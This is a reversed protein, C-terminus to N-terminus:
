RNNGRLIDSFSQLAGSIIARTSRSVSAERTRYSRPSTNSRSELRIAQAKRQARRSLPQDRSDKSLKFTRVRHPALGHATWIRQVSRLSVGTAEAMARGTWHTTEGPPAALTLDVIRKVIDAALPRAPRARRTECWVMSGRACSANRGAGSSRSRCGRGACSRRRAAATPPRWFSVPARWMNKRSNRDGVIQKLRRRDEPTVEFDIGARM